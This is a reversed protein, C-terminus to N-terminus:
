AAKPLEGEPTARDVADPLHQALQDRVENKSVGVKQAIEQLKDSGVAHEVQEGSIPQNAGKGVWSSVIDGLGKEHFLNVLNHLGSSQDGGGGFMSFLHSTLGGGAAAGIKSTVDQKVSDFLGM